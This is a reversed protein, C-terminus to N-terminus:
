LEELLKLANDYEAVLVADSIQELAKKTKRDLTLNNLEELLRDIESIKQLELATKLDTFFSSLFPSLPSPSECQSEAAEIAEQSELATKINKVLGALQEAFHGLKEAIFILDGAHGATELEEALAAIEAAGITASASKLAHVHTTFQILCDADPSNRLFPLRGEADKCFLSLVSRYTDATGGTMIIGHQVNLGLSFLFSFFHSNNLDIKPKESQEKKENKEKEAQLLTEPNQKDRVWHNLVKDLQIIDIPKPIFGNFGKALFMQMNGVLANATLAIIPIKSEMSFSGSELFGKKSLEQEEWERIISVTEIGDMGPMMHDMFVLDYRGAASYYNKKVLDIAAAGSLVADVSLGYPELLGRAVHANVPMDDVILVKGYPMWSREIDKEKGQSVYQFRKLKLATEEGIGRISTDAISADPEDVLEQVLSVTFVSGKGYESEVTIEGGMMEVLKRSIALGLGTGEIKRNARTDLQAYNSFLKDIDEARIGIGTDRVTFRLQAAGAPHSAGAPHAAREWSVSLTIRGEQTYKIANSLINNLVQKVRLEDGYLKRPFDGEIELSFVIPKSGIRVMNLNITDNIFSATEYEEPILEFSGAEIKSIDLIDNVIGLLSSGSQYIYQINNRSSEPLSGRLEIESLGIVANLPTRIEHSITALFESKARSAQIAIETQEKLELTRAQVSAELTLHSKELENYMVRFQQSLTLAMGLHFVMISFMFLNISTHFFMLDVIEFLGCAYFTFSGVLINFLYGRSVENASSEQINKKRREKFYFYVIHYFFVYTSYLIVTAGWIMLTELAFPNSFFIQSLGLFFYFILFFWNIKAVKRKVMEDIFIWLMPAICFLAMYEIRFTIDSNPILYNIFGNRMTTHLFLLFSFISYYLNHIEQKKRVTLFIFLYYIGIYGFIASLVVMPINRHRRVILSFDDFYYPSSYYLGTVAYTPDGVIRFALINTGIAVHSRDIPFHVDRWNRRSRIQGTEDLHMQSRVLAGNFFIEWNEGIFGLFIGPHVQTNDSLLSFAEDDIEIPIIITFEEAPKGWPSLLRREPLDPLASSRVRLQPAEFRFWTESLERIEKMLEPPSKRIDAPDFGRKIYAPSEMLDRFLPSDGGRRILNQENLQYLVVALIAASYLFPVIIKALKTKNKM